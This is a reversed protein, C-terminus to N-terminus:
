GLIEVKLGDFGLFGRDFTALTAGHGIAVAALHADMVLDRTVIRDRLLNQFIDLHQKPPQVALASPAALWDRVITIAEDTTLPSGLLNPNTTLRIFGLLASQELGLTFEGRTGRQVWQRAASNYPSTANIAHVLVSTDVIKM